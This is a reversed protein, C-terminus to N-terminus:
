YSYKFPTNSSIRKYWLSFVFIGAIGWIVTAYVVLNMSFMSSVINNILTLFDANAAIGKINLYTTYYLYVPIYLIFQLLISLLMALIGMGINGLSRLFKM